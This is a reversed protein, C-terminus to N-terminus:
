RHKIASQSPICLLAVFSHLTDIPNTMYKQLQIQKKIQPQMSPATKQIKTITQSHSMTGVFFKVHVPNDRQVNETANRMVNM